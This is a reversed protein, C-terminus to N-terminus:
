GAQARHQAFMLNFGNLDTMCFVRMLWPQDAPPGATQAGGAVAREYAADVDDVVVMITFHKDGRSYAGRGADYAALNFGRFPPRPAGADEPSPLHVSGYTCSGDEDFADQDAEWGLVRGYWEQTEEVDPVELTMEVASVTYEPRLDSM